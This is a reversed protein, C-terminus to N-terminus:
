LSEDVEAEGREACSRTSPRAPPRRRRSSGCGWRPTEALGRDLEDITFGDDRYAIKGTAASRATERAAVVDTSPRLVVLHRTVVSPGPTAVGGRRRRLHQGAGRHHLRDRLVRRGRPVVTPLAPGPAPTSGARSRRNGRPVWGHTAWRYFQGGHVHVGREFTQALLEAVTSKGAAQVGVVLWIPGDSM